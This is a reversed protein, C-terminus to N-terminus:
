EGAASAQALTQQALRIVPLDVMKGDVQIVAGGSAQAAQVVRRAWDVEAAAPTFAANVADAQSPHICLKAGFGMARARLADHRLRASDSVNVTVGDIPAALAARRSAAVFQFRVAALEPEDPTCRMGLDLQFDIHGFALRRVQPARAIERLADLGALSEVLPVLSASPGLASAVARLTEVSEAKPAMVGCLGSACGAAIAQLDAAHWETEAANIRVLTRGLRSADFAQLADALLARARDKDSPVVADELDIVVCDAGSGLAKAFREPRSAPVFLFSRASTLSM